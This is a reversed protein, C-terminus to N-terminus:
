IPEKYCCVAWSVRRGVWKLQRWSVVWGRKTLGSVVSRWVTAEVWWRRTVLRVFSIKRTAVFSLLM